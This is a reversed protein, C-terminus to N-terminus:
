LSEMKIKVLKNVLGMDAKGKLIPMVAGMVKGIDKSTPQINNFIDNLVKNIDEESMMQPMYNNLINIESTTQDILDQRNGKIFDEISEKRTKIQKAILTVMEEDSLEKKKNIEEIQMAGKVMRLVSLVEKNQAKMASVLDTLIKNRM